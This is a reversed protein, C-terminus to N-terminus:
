QTYRGEPGHDPGQELASLRPARAGTGSLVREVIAFAQNAAPVGAYVATQLLIEQLKDVSLGARLAARIHLELEEPRNLAVLMAVTALRRTTEDLGPRAWVDGWPWRTLFDQWPATFESLAADVHADGLVRRRVAMGRETADGVLHRLMAANFAEPQEVNALHAAGPIITLGAGPISEMTAVASAPPASPDGAGAIV